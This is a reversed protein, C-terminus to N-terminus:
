LTNGTHYKVLTEILSSYTPPDLESKAEKLFKHMRNQVRGVNVGIQGKKNASM